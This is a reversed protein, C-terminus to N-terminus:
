LGLGRAVPVHGVRQAVTTVVIGVLGALLSASLSVQRIGGLPEVKRRLKGPKESSSSLADGFSQSQITVIKAKQTKSNDQDRIEQETPEVLTPGIGWGLFIGVLGGVIHGSYCVPLIFAPLPCSEHMRLLLHKLQMQGVPFANWFSNRHM